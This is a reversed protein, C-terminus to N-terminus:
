RGMILYQKEKTKAIRCYQNNHATIYVMLVHRGTINTILGHETVLMYVHCYFYLLLLLLLLLFSFLVFCFLVFLFVWM